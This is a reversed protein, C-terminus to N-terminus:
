SHFFFTISYIFSHIQQFWPYNNKNHNNNNNKKELLLRCVLKAQSQPESTHEESRSDLEELQDPIREIRFKRTPMRKIFAIVRTIVFLLSKICQTPGVLATVTFAVALQHIGAQTIIILIAPEDLMKPM